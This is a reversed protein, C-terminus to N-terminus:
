AVDAGEATAPITAPQPAVPLAEVYPLEVEFMSGVGDVGDRVRVQGRYRRVLTGVIYLGLGTGLKERELETGLRVFRGFIKRRLHKPVGPGNDAISVLVRRDTLTEMAVQVRPPQGGYKVANDMLNRFIMELDVRSSRVICPRVDLEVAERPLRYRMCVTEACHSLVVALDVEAIERAADGRELRGVELLHNILQDLREIDELMYAYFDTEQERSVQRRTLTQLYLKLSAIPSKLEHTVSDIFNSQRRNLNISKITLVMYTIVGALVLALFVTGVSLWTWFFAVHRGSGLAGVVVLVWGVILAVLLVIMVVALTIPLKLSRRM